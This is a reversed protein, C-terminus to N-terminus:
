CSAKDELEAATSWYSIQPVDLAGSLMAVPAPAASRAPGIIVNPRNTESLSPIVAALGTEPTSGSDMLTIKLQKDCGALDALAPAYTGNRANFEDVAALAAVVVTQWSPGLWCTGNVFTEGCLQASSFRADSMRQLITVSVDTTAALALGYVALLRLM